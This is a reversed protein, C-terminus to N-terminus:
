CCCQPTADLGADPRDPLHASGGTQRAIADLVRAAVTPSTAYGARALAEYTRRAAEPAAAGHRLIFLAATRMVDLERIAM